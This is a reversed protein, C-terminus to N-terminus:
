VGHWYEDIVRQALTPEDTIIADVGQALLERMTAEHNITWVHVALGRAHCLRIFRPTVVQVRMQKLPVQVAEVGHKVSPVLMKAFFLGLRSPLYSLAVLTAIAGTGLSSRVDRLSRRMGKLRMESFSALSVREVANAKKITTILSDVVHQSKADINFVIEPFLELADDLRVLPNGSYDRVRALQKWSYDAIKGTGDTTRDLSSDHFLVAVGDNTAHADTEIYRFGKSEMMAFAELSNELAEHGGGRHALVRPKEGIPWLRRVM